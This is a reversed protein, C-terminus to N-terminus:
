DPAGPALEGIFNQIRQTVLEDRGTKLLEERSVWRYACTEGEQQVVSNKDAATTCLYEAYITRNGHHIVRGVETLTDPSIGTEEYLERAACEFPGEGRLASGGATLEWMGGLHKRPDRRMLLWSGDEHRVAIDAVLHYCGEPIEEGRILTRGELRNMNEDYADWIEM